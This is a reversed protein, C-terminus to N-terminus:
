PCAQCRSVKEAPRGDGDERELAPQLRRHVVVGRPAPQGVLVRQLRRRRRMNASVFPLTSLHCTLRMHAISPPFLPPHPEIAVIAVTRRPAWEGAKAAARAGLLFANVFAYSTPHGDIALIMGLIGTNSVSAAVFGAHRIAEYMRGTATALNPYPPLVNRLTSMVLVSIGPYTPTIARAAPKYEGGVCLFMTANQAIAKAFYQLAVATGDGVYDYADTYYLSSDVATQYAASMAIRARNHSQPWRIELESPYFSAIKVPQRYTVPVTTNVWHWHSGGNYSLYIDAGDCDTSPDAQSRFRISYAGANTQGQPIVSVTVAGSSVRYTYGLGSTFQSELLSAPPATAGDANCVVTVDISSSPIPAATQDVVVM